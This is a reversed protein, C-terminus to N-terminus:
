PCSPNALLVRLMKGSPELAHSGSKFCGACKHTCTDLDIPTNLDIRINSDAQPNLSIPTNPDAPLKVIYRFAAELLRISREVSVCLM